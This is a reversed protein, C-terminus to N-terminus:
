PAQRSTGKIGPQGVTSQSNEVVALVMENYSLNGGREREKEREM